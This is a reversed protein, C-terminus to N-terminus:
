ISARRRSDPKKYSARYRSGLLGLGVIGIRRQNMSATRMDLLGRDRLLSFTTADAERM